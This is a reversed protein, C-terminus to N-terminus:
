LCDDFLVGGINNGERGFIEFIQEVLLSAVGFVVDFFGVGMM